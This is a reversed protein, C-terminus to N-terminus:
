KTNESKVEIFKKKVFELIRNELHKADENEYVYYIIGKWEDEILYSETKQKVTDKIHGKSKM